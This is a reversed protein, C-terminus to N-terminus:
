PAMLFWPNGDPSFSASLPFSGLNAQGPFRDDVASGLDTLSGLVVPKFDKVLSGNFADYLRANLADFLFHGDPFVSLHFADASFRNVEVRSDVDYVHVFIGYEPSYSGCALYRGDPFWVPNEENYDLDGVRQWSGDGLSVVYINLDSPEGGDLPNETAQVVIQLGDPSILPRDVAYLGNVSVLRTTGNPYVVHVSSQDTFVLQRSQVDFANGPTAEVVVSGDLRVLRAEFRDVRPVQYYVGSAFM